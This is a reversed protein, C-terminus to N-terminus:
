NRGPTTGSLAPPIPDLAQLRGNNLQFRVSSQGAPSGQRFLAYAVTVETEGQTPISIRTSPVRVDTGLYHNGAFFFALQGRGSSTRTGILVRLTQEAHYESPNQPTYGLSRVTALAGPLGEAHTEQQTFAPEPATRATSRTATESTSTTPAPTTATTSATSTATATATTTTAPSSQTPASAATVTTTTSGCAALLAACALALPATALVRLSRLPM